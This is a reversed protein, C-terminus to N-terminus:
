KDIVHKYFVCMNQNRLVISYLKYYYLVGSYHVSENAMISLGSLQKQQM